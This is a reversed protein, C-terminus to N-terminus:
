AVKTNRRSALIKRISRELEEPPCPKTLIVDAGAERASKNITALPYASIM